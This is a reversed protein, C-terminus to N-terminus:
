YVPQTMASTVPVRFQMRKGDRVVSLYLLEGPQLNQLRDQFDLFNSVRAGDVGIIMDYSEGVKAMDIAPILIAAPPFFLAGAIAVGAMVDHFAHHYGQLGASEAPSGKTVEVILLGDAEEGSNLSRRAERLEMGIPSEMTEGSLYAGGGYAQQQSMGSQEQQYRIIDNAASPDQSTGSNPPDADQSV